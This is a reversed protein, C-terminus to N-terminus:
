KSEIRIFATAPPVPQSRTTLPPRLWYFLPALQHFNLWSFQNNSTYHYRVDMEPSQISSLESTCASTSLALLRAPRLMFRFISCRLFRREKHCKLPFYPHRTEGEHVFVLILPSSIVMLAWQIWRHVTQSM